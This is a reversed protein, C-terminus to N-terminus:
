KDLQHGRFYKNSDLYSNIEHIDSYKITNEELLLATLTKNV